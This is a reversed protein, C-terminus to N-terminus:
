LRHDTGRSGPGSNSRAHRRPNRARVVADIIWVDSGSCPYRVFGARMFFAHVFYRVSLACRIAHMSCRARVARMSRVSLPGHSLTRLREFYRARNSRVHCGHTWIIVDIWPYARM